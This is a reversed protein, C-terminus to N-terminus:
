PRHHVGKESITLKAVREESFSIISLFIIFITM